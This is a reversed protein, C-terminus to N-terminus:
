LTNFYILFNKAGVDEGGHTEDKLPVLSQYRYNPDDLDAQTLNKREKNIEAGPGTLYGLTSYRKNDLAIYDDTDVLGFIPNGRTQYGGM